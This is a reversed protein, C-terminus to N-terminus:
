EADPALVVPAVPAPEAAPTTSAPDDVAAVVAALESDNLDSFNVGLLSGNSDAPAPRTAMPAGARPAPRVPAPRTTHLWMAGSGIAVLATAAFARLAGRRAWAPTHRAPIAVVRAPRRDAGPAATRRESPIGAPLTRARVAAAIADVAISPVPYADRVAALTGYEGRCADCTALHAELEARQSAPARGHLLAPLADRVAAHAAAHPESDPTFADHDSM